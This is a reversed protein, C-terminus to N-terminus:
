SKSIFDKYNCENFKLNTIEYLSDDLKKFHWMYNEDMQPDTTSVYTFIKRRPSTVENVKWKDKAFLYEDYQKNQLFYTSSRNTVPKLIWVGQKDDDTFEKPGSSFLPAWVSVDRQSRNVKYLYSIAYLYNNKYTKSLIMCEYEIKGVSKAEKGMEVATKLSNVLSVQILIALSFWKMLALKFM